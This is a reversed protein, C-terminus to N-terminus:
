VLNSEVHRPLYFDNPVLDSLIHEIVTQEFIKSAEFIENNKDPLFINLDLLFLKASKKSEFVQENNVM